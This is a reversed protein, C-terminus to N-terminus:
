NNIGLHEVFQCLTRENRHEAAAKVEIGKIGQHEFIDDALCIMGNALRYAPHPRM